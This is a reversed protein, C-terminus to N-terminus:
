DQDKIRLELDEIEEQLAKYESHFCDVFEELEIKNDDSRDMREFLGNVIEEFRERMEYEEERSRNAAPTEMTSGEGQLKVNTLKMM